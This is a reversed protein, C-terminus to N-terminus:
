SVTPVKTEKYTQYYVLPSSQLQPNGWLHNVANKLNQDQTGTRFQISAALILWAAVTCAYIFVIAAIRQIM